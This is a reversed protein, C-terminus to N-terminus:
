DLLGMVVFEAEWKATCVGRLEERAEKVLADMAARAKRLKSLADKIDGSNDDEIAQRLEAMAESVAKGPDTLEVGFGGGGREGPAGRGGGRSVMDRERVLARVKQIMPALIEFEDESIEMRERLEQAQEKEREAIREQMRARMEERMQEREEESANEWRQRWDGRDGGRDGRDGRDQAIAPLSMTLLLMVILLRSLRLASTKM